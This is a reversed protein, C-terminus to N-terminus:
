ASAKEFAPHDALIEEIAPPTWGEPKIVDFASGRGSAEASEAREKAMNVRQVEDWLLDYPIRLQVAIVMAAISATVLQQMVAAADYDIAEQMATNTATIVGGLQAIVYEGLGEMVPPNIFYGTDQYIGYESRTVGYTQMTLVREFPSAPLQWHHTLGSGPQIARLATTRHTPELDLGLFLATGQLVYEFDILADALGAFNNAGVSQVAETLEELMFGFRFAITDVPLPHMRVSVLSEANFPDHGRPLTETPLGFKEHFAAVDAQTSRDRYARASTLGGTSNSM